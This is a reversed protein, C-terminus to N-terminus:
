KINKKLEQNWIFFRKHTIKYIIKSYKDFQVILEAEDIYKWENMNDILEKLYKKTKAKNTNVYIFNLQDFLSAYNIWHKMLVTGYEM